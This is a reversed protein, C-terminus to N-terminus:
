GPNRSKEKQILDALAQGMPNKTLEGQIQTKIRAKWDDIHRQFFVTDIRHSFDPPPTRTPNDLKPFDMHPLKTWIQDYDFKKHSKPNPKAVLPTLHYIRTIHTIVHDLAAQCGKGKWTHEQQVYSHGGTSSLFHELKNDAIGIDKNLPQAYDWRGGPHASNLDGQM